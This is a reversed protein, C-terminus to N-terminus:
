MADKALRALRRQLESPPPLLRDLDQRDNLWTVTGELFLLDLLPILSDAGGFMVTVEGDMFMGRYDMNQSGVLAYGAGRGPQNAAGFVRRAIRALEDPFDKAGGAEGADGIDHTAQRYQLYTAMFQPWEPSDFIADWLDATAVYQVKKHLKPAERTAVAAATLPPGRNAGAGVAAVVPLLSSTAPTLARTFPTAAIQRAWADARSAFGNRDPGIAYLGIRLEGGSRQLPDALESRLFLLRTFLEHARAMQPFGASPANPLAPATISVTAGRLSAGALLGGFFTSNWLSDPTKIVADAHLLSYLLAKAVNIPKALFGTGNVLLLASSTEEDDYAAWANTADAAAPAIRMPFPLDGEPMGQSLLLEAAARKLDLLAPGQMILSRDEWARGLYQEGVGMGTMIAIGHRDSESVDRFAVKRHDRMVNDPYGFITGILSGSYFSVDARHTVSVHVKVRNRLWAKGYQRAEAQLVRSGQVASRLRTLAHELPARDGEVNRPLRASAGLPDELITMLIRSRREQYYFEDLFIFYSPLAGTSDYAEVREALATLYGDVVQSYSAWDLMGDATVAPFDHVWLVHYSRTERISRLLEWHFQLNAIYRLRNGDTFAMDTARAVLDDLEHQEDHEEPLLAYQLPLWVLRADNWEDLASRRVEDMLETFQQFVVLVTENHADPLHGSSAAWKSFRGRAATALDVLTDNRKKRGLLRNYPLLMEELVIERAQRALARGVEADHRAAITFAHELQEHFHRVEDDVSRVALHGRLTRVYSETRREAIESSRGDQDLFPVVLRRIWEASTRLSDFVIELEPGAPGYQVGADAVGAVVVHDRIPRGRGALPDGVPVSVGVSFSRTAPYIDARFLGGPVIIGGRRVPGYVTVLGALGNDRINYEVGGGILLYPVRFMLRAGGDVREHASVYGEVGVNALAAVPNFLHRSAGAYAQITAPERAAGWGAGAGIGAYWQVQRPQGLSAIRGGLEPPRELQASLPTLSASLLCACIAAVSAGHYARRCCPDDLSEVHPM